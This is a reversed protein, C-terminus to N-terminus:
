AFSNHIGSKVLYVEGADYTMSLILRDPHRKAEELAAFYNAGSTPGTYCGIQHALKRQGLAANQDSVKHYKDVIAGSLFPPTVGVAAGFQCHEEFTANRFSCNEPEVIILKVDPYNERFVSSIAAAHAGTGAALILSIGKFDKPIYRVQKVFEPGTEKLHANYNATNNFQDTFFYTDGHEELLHKIVQVPQYGKHLLNMGVLKAGYEQCLRKKLPSFSLGIVLDVGINKRLAEYALGVGFNGGSKELIRRNGGPLIQGSEIAAKIVYKAARAKHSGGSHFHDLKFYVNGDLAIVPTIDLM